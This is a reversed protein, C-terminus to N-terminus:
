EKTALIARRIEAAVLRYIEAIQPETALARLHRAIVEDEGRAAPGTFRQEGEHELWNQLASEALAALERRADDIGVTALLRSSIDLMTAIYNAGFVAAAHYLAKDKAEIVALRAGAADAFHEAIERHNGEFVLLSDRLDSLEGPPPLVKLPHLSFGDGIHPLAGSAHFVVARSPPLSCALEEIAGDNVALLLLDSQRALEGAPRRPAALLEPTRSMSAPRTAVGALPWGIRRWTSGFAWAARGGGIIGLSPNM